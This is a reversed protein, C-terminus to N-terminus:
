CPLDFWVTKGRGAPRVGWADALADVIAMGRGHVAGVDAPQIAPLSANGDGVEVHVKAPSVTVSLDVSSRAHEVANTVLESVLLVATDCVTESVGSEACRDRVFSRAQAVARRSRELSLSSPVSRAIM